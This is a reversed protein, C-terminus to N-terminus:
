LSWAPRAVFSAGLTSAFDQDQFAHLTGKGAQPHLGRRVRYLQCKAAEDPDHRAKCPRRLLKNRRGDYAGCIMCCTLRTGSDTYYQKTEHGPGILADPQQKWQYNRKAKAASPRAVEQKSPYLHMHLEPYDQLAQNVFDQLWAPPKWQRRECKRSSTTASQTVEPSDASRKRNPLTYDWQQASAMNGAIRGATQAIKMQLQLQQKIRRDSEVLDQLRHLAQGAWYDADENGKWREWQPEHEQPQTQHSRIKEITCARNSTAQQISHWVHGNAVLTLDASHLQNFLDYCHKSDTVIHVPGTTHLLAQLIAYAEAQNITQDPFEDM